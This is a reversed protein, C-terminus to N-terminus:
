SPPDCLDVLQEITADGEEPLAEESGEPPERGTLRAAQAAYALATPYPDATVPDAVGFWHEADVENIEPSNWTHLALAEVGCGSSAIAPTLVGVFGARLDEAAVPRDGQKRTPWGFENVSLPRGRLPTADVIRRFWALTRAVGGPDFGYPHVAVVDIQEVLAPQAALARDLFEDAALSHPPTGVSRRFGGLGAFLVRAEPDAAHVARGGALALAAWEEPQPRPCWFVFFNPENWLEYETIPEYPLDPNEAWFRGERGYRRAVEGVLGAYDRPRGPPSRDGCGAALAGPDTAWTPTPTGMVTPQWRLGREALARVWVDTTRWDFDDAGGDPATPQIIRWDLNTRVFALGLEAISDLQLEMEDSRNVTPLRQLVQANVGFLEAPLGGGPEDGGGCGALVAAAALATAAALRNM